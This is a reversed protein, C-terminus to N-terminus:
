AYDKKMTTSKENSKGKSLAFTPQVEAYCALKVRCETPVGKAASFLLCSVSLEVMLVVLFM